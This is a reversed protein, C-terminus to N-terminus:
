KLLVWTAGSGGFRAEPHGSEGVFPCQEIFMRVDKKLIAEGESHNGKGHVLQIKEYGLKKARDFFAEMATQAEERSLGHLDLVADPRARRLRRRREMSSEEAEALADKDVIDNLRMWALQPPIKEEAFSSDEQIKQRNNAKKHKEEEWQELIKGFGM